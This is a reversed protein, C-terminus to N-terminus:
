LKFPLVSMGTQGKIFFVSAFTQGVFARHAIEARYDKELSVISGKECPLVPM